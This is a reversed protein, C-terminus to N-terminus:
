CSMLTGSASAFAITFGSLTRFSSLHFATAGINSLSPHEHKLPAIGGGEELRLEGLFRTGPQLAIREHQIVDGEM